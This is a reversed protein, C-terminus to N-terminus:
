EDPLLARMLALGQGPANYNPVVAPETQSASTGDLPVDGARPGLVAVLAGRVRDDSEANVWGHAMLLAAVSEPATEPTEESDDLVEAGGLLVLVARVLRSDAHGLLEALCQEVAQEVESLPAEWRPAHGDKSLVGVDGVAHDTAPNDDSRQRTAGEGDPASLGSAVDPPALSRKNDAPVLVPEGGRRHPCHRWPLVSVRWRQNVGVGTPVIIGTADLETM